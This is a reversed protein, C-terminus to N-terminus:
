LPPGPGNEEESESIETGKGEEEPGWLEVEELEDEEVDPQLLVYMPHTVICWRHTNGPRNCTTMSKRYVLDDKRM